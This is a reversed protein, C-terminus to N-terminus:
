EAVFDSAQPDPDVPPPPETAAGDGAAGGFPFPVELLSLDVALPVDPYARRFDAVAGKLQHRLAFFTVKQQELRQEAKQLKIDQRAGYRDQFLHQWSTYVDKPGFLILSHLIVCFLTALAAILWNVPDLLDIDALFMALTFGTAVILLAVSARHWLRYPKWDEESVLQGSLGEEELFAETRSKVQHKQHAVLLEGVIILAPVLFRALLAWGMELVQDVVPVGITPNFQVALWEATGSLLMIDLLFACPVVLLYMSFRWRPQDAFRAAARQMEEVERRLSLYANRQGLANHFQSEIHRRLREAKESM